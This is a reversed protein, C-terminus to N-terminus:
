QFQQCSLPYRGLQRLLFDSMAQAPRLGENRLIFEPFASEIHHFKQLDTSRQPRVGPFDEHFKQLDIRGSGNDRVAISMSTIEIATIREV